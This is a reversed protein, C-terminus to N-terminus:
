LAPPRPPEPSQSPRQPAFASAPAGSSPVGYPPGSSRMDYPGPQYRGHLLGIIVFATGLVIIAGGVGVAVEAEGSALGILLMLGLGIAIVVIGFTTAPSPRRPQWGQAVADHVSPPALGREIMALRERHEMERNRTRQWMAMLIVVVGGALFIGNVVVAILAIGTDM